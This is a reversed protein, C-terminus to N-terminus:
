RPMNSMQITMNCDWKKLNVIHEKLKLVAKNRHSLTNKLESPMEAYTQSYGKPLFCSDWGFGNSGRPAVITGETEGRFLKVEGTQDAYGLTCVALATKDPFDALLRPLGDAGLKKM